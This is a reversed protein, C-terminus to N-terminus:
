GGTSGPKTRASKANYMARDASEMAGDPDEGKRFAHVGHTMSLSLNKGNWEFPTESLQRALFQAKREAVERDAKAMILGFEDGGLRGIIDSERVNGTLIKAVHLLVADGAAHGFTDNVQKFGDLDFYVLSASLDYREGFDLIRSMERVFARRNLLPVLSDQDALVQVSQMKNKMQEIENRLRDLEGMLNMIADRVKPTFENEPIDLVTAVEGVARAAAGQGPASVKQVSAYASVGTAGTISGQRPGSIKM